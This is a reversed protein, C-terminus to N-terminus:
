RVLGRMRARWPNLDGAPGRLISIFVRQYKEMDTYRIMTSGVETEKFHTKMQNLCAFCHLFYEQCYMDNEIVDDDGTWGHPSFGSKDLKSDGHEDPTMDKKLALIHEKEPGTKCNIIQLNAAMM